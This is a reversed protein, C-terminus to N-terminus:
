AAKQGGAAVLRAYLGQRAVLEEHRGKEVIRGKDLVVILDAHRVTSLRHAVTVRTCRLKRLSDVIAAEVTADLASTAEDLLMIAPRRLVARAIALRQRQGGSLSAGGDSVIAEYSMPLAMIDDHLQALQAAAIIQDLPAEPSTLAINDRVTAGFIYPHQPVVGLQQRVARLDLEWLDHGDYHVKGVVPPYLGAIIKLLTSKGSGSPGVLAVSMGPQIELDVGQLVAPAQEHYRFGVNKLTIAGRLPPPPRAASRDQETPTTLVDDIRHLYGRVVQLQLATSVLSSLPGFLSMALSNMALMMGLSMQHQLVLTAGVSMILLPALTALANRIADVKATVRGIALSANLTEAYHNAYKEIALSEAGACKLTEVAALMQMMYGQARAQKDLSAANLRRYNTRAFAYVAAQAIALGLALFGLKASTLLIILAYIIVFGGDLLVGVSQSTVMERVTSNSSVRMLLDGSSRRQFFSFPLSMMHDLFGMTMRTDLVARLHQLLYSRMLQCVMEIAVMGVAAIVVIKLLDLDARPVVRDIVAATVLPLALGFLRLVVSVVVVRRFLTKQAFIERAYDRLRGKPRKVRTFRDTPDLELAVGTFSKGFQALPVDRVGNAPDVIRVGGRVVRDFVVFHNMEWHLITGRRLLALDSVDLKLGRGVMGFRDAGDLIARASVGAGTASVANRAEQLTTHRGHFSLVMALCAAGCDTWELQQIFPIDGGPRVPIGVPLAPVDAPRAAPPSATDPAQM